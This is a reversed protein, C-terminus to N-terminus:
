DVFCYILHKLVNCAVLYASGMMAPRRSDRFIFVLNYYTLRCFFVIIIFCLSTMVKLGKARNIARLPRLVRAVRLIKVVNIADSSCIVFVCAVATCRQGYIICM